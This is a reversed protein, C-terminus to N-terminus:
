LIREELFVMKMSLPRRPESGSYPVHLHNPLPIYIADISPESLLDDYSTEVADQYIKPLKKQTPNRRGIHTIEHGAELIAPALYNRAIKAEGLIGFKMM